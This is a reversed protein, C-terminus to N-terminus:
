LEQGHTPKAPQVGADVPGELVLQHQEGCSRDLWGLGGAAFVACNEDAISNSNNPEGEAWASFADAVKGGDKTWFPSVDGEWAWVGEEKSDSAGLWYHKGHDLWSHLFADEEASEITLIRSEPAAELFQKATEYDILDAFLRYSKGQFTAVKAPEGLERRKRRMTFGKEAFVKALQEPGEDPLIFKSVLDSEEPGSYLSAEPDHGAVWEVSM